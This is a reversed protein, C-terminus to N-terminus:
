AGASQKLQQFTKQLIPCSSAMGRLQFCLLSIEENEGVGQQVCQKEGWRAKVHLRRCEFHNDGKHVRKEIRELGRQM